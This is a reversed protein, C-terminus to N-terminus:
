HLNKLKNFKESYLMERIGNIFADPDAYDPHIRMLAAEHTLEKVIRIKGLM